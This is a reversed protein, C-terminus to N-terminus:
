SIKQFIKQYLLCLNKMFSDKNHRDDLTIKQERIEKNSINNNHERYHTIRYSNSIIGNLLPKSITISNQLSNVVLIDGTDRNKSIPTLPSEKKTVTTGDTVILMRCSDNMIRKSNLKLSFTEQQLQLLFILLLDCNTNVLDLVPVYLPLADNNM